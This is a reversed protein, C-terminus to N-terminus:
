IVELLHDPDTGLKQTVKELTDIMNGSLDTDPVFLTKMPLATGEEIKRVGGDIPGREETKYYRDNYREPVVIPTDVPKPKEVEFKKYFVEPMPFRDFDPLSKFLNFIAQTYEDATMTSEKEKLDKFQQETTMVKKTEM